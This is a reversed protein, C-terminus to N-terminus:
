RERRSVILRRRRHWGLLLLLPAGVLVMGNPEPVGTLTIDWTGVVVPDPDYAVIRGSQHCPGEPDGRCPDAPFLSGIPIIPALVPQESPLDGLKPFAFAAFRGAKGRVSVDVGCSGDALCPDVLSPDEVATVMRPFVDLFILGPSDTPQPGNGGLIDLYFSATAVLMSDAPFSAPPLFSVTLEVNLFTALAPTVSVALLLTLLFALRRM